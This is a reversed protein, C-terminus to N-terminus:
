LLFTVDVRAALREMLKRERKSLGTGLDNRLKEGYYGNIIATNAKELALWLLDFSGRQLYISADNIFLIETPSVIFTKLLREIIKRNYEALDLLEASSRASLRPTKIDKADLYRVKFEDPKLIKGGVLLGHLSVQKPAMDIVTIQPGYGKELAEMLLHRTFRTKGSGVDGMILVKKGLFETFLM